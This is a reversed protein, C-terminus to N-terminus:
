DRRQGSIWEMTLEMEGTDPDPNRAIIQLGERQYFKVAQENKEYVNLQFSPYSAKLQQFLERGIGQSRFGREVFIGALYRDQMGAFGRVSGKSEWVLIKARPLLSRVLDERSLWYDPPIFPHADLNGELWIQMIADLDKISFPRIM